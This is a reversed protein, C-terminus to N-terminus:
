VFRAPCSAPPRDNAVGGYGGPGALEACDLGHRRRESHLHARDVHAVRRSISRATVAKARDAIASQDHRRARQHANMASQDDRERSLVFQGCNVPGSRQRWSAAQDGIPRIKDVQVPARGTIYVTDEFALLWGVQRHLRRGLISNTILRLVALASPRSMGGVSSARASSTISHHAALEDRQEAARRRKGASARREAM